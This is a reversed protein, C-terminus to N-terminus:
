TRQETGVIDVVVSLIIMNETRKGSHGACCVAHWTKQKKEGMEIGVSLMCHGRSQKWQKWGWLCCVIDEARNGDGCVVYLTRQETEMVVSLM